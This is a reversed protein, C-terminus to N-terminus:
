LSKLRKKPAFLYFLFFIFLYKITGSYVGPTGGRGSMVCFNMIVFTFMFFNKRDHVFTNYAVSFFLGFLFPHIFFAYKGFIFVSETVLGPLAISQIDAASGLGVAQVTFLATFNFDLGFAKMFGPLPLTLLWIIYNLSYHETSKYITDFYSYYDTETRILFTVADGMNINDAVSGLRSYAYTYFFILAFPISIATGLLIKKRLNPYFAYLYVLIFALTYALEGRSIYAIDCFPIYHTMLYLFILIIPKKVYKYLAVFFLPAVFTKLSGGIDSVQNETFDLDSFSDVLSSAPPSFLRFFNGDQILPLLLFFFYIIIIPTANKICFENIFSNTRIKTDRHYFIYMSISLVGMFMYYYLEYTTNDSTDFALGLGCYVYIFLLLVLYYAKRTKDKLKFVWAFEIISIILLRFFVSLNEM